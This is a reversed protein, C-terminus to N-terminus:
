SLAIRTYVATAGAVAAGETGFAVLRAIGAARGTALTEGARRTQTARAAVATDLGALLAIASRIAIGRAADDASGVVVAVIGRCAM